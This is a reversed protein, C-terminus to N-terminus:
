GNSAEKTSSNEVTEAFFIMSLEDDSLHLINRLILIENQVFPTKGNLKNSFTRETVGCALALFKNKFGNENIISKLLATNTM